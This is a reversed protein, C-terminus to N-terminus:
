YTVYRDRYEDVESPGKEKKLERIVEEPHQMGIRAIIEKLETVTTRRLEPYKETIQMLENFFDAARGEVEGKSPSLDEEDFERLRNALRNGLRDIDYDTEEKKERRRGLRNALQNAEESDLNNEEKAM